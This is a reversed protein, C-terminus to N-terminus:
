KKKSIGAASKCTFTPICEVAPRRAGLLFKIGKYEVEEGMAKLTRM